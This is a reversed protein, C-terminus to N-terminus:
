SFLCLSICTRTCNVQLIFLSFVIVWGYGGDPGVVRTVDGTTMTRVCFLTACSIWQTTFFYRIFGLHWLKLCKFSERLLVVDSRIVNARSTARSRCIRVCLIECCVSGLQLFGSIGNSVFLLQVQTYDRTLILRRNILSVRYIIVATCVIHIYLVHVNYM